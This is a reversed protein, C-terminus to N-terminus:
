RNLWPPSAPGPMIGQRHLRHSKIIRPTPPHPPLNDLAEPRDQWWEEIDKAEDETLWEKEQAKELFHDLAKERKELWQARKQQWREKIQELKEEPIYRQEGARNLAGERMEQRAQQFAEVLKDLPIQLIEAVRALMGKGATPPAPDNDAMVAATGAVTLLCVTLVVSILIKVRKSM